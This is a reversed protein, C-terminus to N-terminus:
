HDIAFAGGIGTWADILSQDLLLSAVFHDWFSAPDAPWPHASGLMGGVQLPTPDPDMQRAQYEWLAFAWDMENAVGDPCSQESCLPVYQDELLVDSFFLLSGAVVYAAQAQSEDNWTSITYWQAFGEVSAAPQYELSDITHDMSPMCDPDYDPDSPDDSCTEPSYGYDIDGMAIDTTALITQLHGWEHALTFKRSDSGPKDDMAGRYNATPWNGIDRRAVTNGTTLVSYLPAGGALPRRFSSFTTAWFMATTPEPQPAFATEGGPGLPFVDTKKEFSCSPDSWCDYSAVGAGDALYAWDYRELFVLAGAAGNFEGTCGNFDLPAWGWLTAGEDNKVRALM